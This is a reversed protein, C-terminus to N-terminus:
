PKSWRREGVLGLAHERVYSRDSEVQAAQGKFSTCSQRLDRLVHALKKAVALRPLQLGIITHGVQLEFGRCALLEKGSLLKKTSALFSQEFFRFLFILLNM